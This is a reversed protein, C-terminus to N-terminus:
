ELVNTWIKHSVNPNIQKAEFLQSVTVFTYGQAQLGEIINPLAKVTNQNGEFDHLLIITGDKTERLVTSTREEPTVEPEWDSCGIGQIFPYSISEYMTDSLAIYPPRFFKVDYNVTDKIVKTTQNLEDQIQSPEMVSMDSHTLSHNALECGLSLQREMIPKTEQTVQKGILFFTAVIHYKELIDLVQPTTTTPGDDFTLAIVKTNKNIIM